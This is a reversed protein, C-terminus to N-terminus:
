PGVHQALHNLESEIDARQPPAGDPVDCGLFLDETTRAPRCTLDSTTGPLPEGKLIALFGDFGLSTGPTSPPTSHRMDSAADCGTLLFLSILVPVAFKRM